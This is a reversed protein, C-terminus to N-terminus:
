RWTSGANRRNQRTKLEIIIRAVAYMLLIEIVRATVKRAKGLGM